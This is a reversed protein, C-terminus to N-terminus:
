RTLNEGIVSADAQQSILSEKTFVSQVDLNWVFFSLIKKDTFFTRIKKAKRKCKADCHQASAEMEKLLHGMYLDWSLYFKTGASYHSSVWRFFM